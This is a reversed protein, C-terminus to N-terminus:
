PLREQVLANKIIVLMSEIDQTWDATGSIRLHQQHLGRVSFLEGPTV